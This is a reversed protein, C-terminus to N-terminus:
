KSKNDRKQWRQGHKKKESVIVALDFRNPFIMCSITASNERDKVNESIFEVSLVLKCLKLM